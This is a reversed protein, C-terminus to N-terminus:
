DAPAQEPTPIAPAATLARYAFFLKARWRLIMGFALVFFLAATQQLTMITDFYSRAFYRIAALVVVVAFFAGNRKMKIADGDRVLRSTALLPWALLIAGIAFALAAWLLPVRFAPVFFMCFGTAMGMPPIVIKRITVATQTERIRWIMVGIFGIISSVASTALPIHPFAM